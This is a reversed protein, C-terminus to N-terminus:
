NDTLTLTGIKICEGSRLLYKIEDASKSKDRWLTYVNGGLGGIQYQGDYTKFISYIAGLGSRYVDGPQFNNYLERKLEQIEKQADLITQQASNIKDNNLKIRMKLIDIQEQIETQNM